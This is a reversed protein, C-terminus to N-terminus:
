TELKKEETIWKSTGDEYIEKKFIPPRTKYLSIADQIAPFVDTRSEGAVAVLVVPEGPSFRGYSHIVVADKVNHKEKIERSIKELENEAKEEWAELELIDVKEGNKSTDKAIGVFFLVAGNEVTSNRNM